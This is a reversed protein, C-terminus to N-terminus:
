ANKAFAGDPITVKKIDAGIKQLKGILDEYGREVWHIDEIESTGKASLAAQVLAVGARLDLAKVQAGSLQEVGEVVAVKGDVQIKAGMRHLEDVYKFRNDWVGETVISTGQAISLLTTMQPQMDTPFGPHPLTKVNTKNLVGTRRVRISDDYEEIECGAQILKDTIAELHKPIVNKILVDGGTAAAITMYTGAEIQDPIIPYNTGHMIDVGHIKIVDTGAGRIDAGMSNLFNALDVIHPEKAANELITLGKARVAALMINVTAGVSVVDLYIHAGFMEDSQANIFGYDTTVTAGLAEFGKIHQDIPRSGFDCGGPVGVYAKGYRGVEAGLLYYSARIKRVLELSSCGGRVRTCNVSVTTPNLYTVSAGMDELITLAVRVDDISPLNEITCTDKVLLCGFIIPLAANKMGSTEIEGYLPQGGRIVIKEM